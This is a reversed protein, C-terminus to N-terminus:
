TVTYLNCGGVTVSYGNHSDFVQASVVMYEKFIPLAGAVAIQVDLKALTGTDTANFTFSYHGDTDHTGGSSENKQAFAAGSKSIQVDAQNITLSVEATKGDDEDLFPGLRQTFATSQRLYQM